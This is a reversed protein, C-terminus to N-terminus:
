ASPHIIEKLQTALTAIQQLMAEDPPSPGFYWFPPGTESDLSTANLPNWYAQPLKQAITHINNSLYWFQSINLLVGNISADRLTSILDEIRFLESEHAEDLKILQNMTWSASDLEDTFWFHTPDTTANETISPLRVYVESFIIGFQQSTEVMSAWRKHTEIRDSTWVFSALAVVIVLILVLLQKLSIHFVRNWRSPKVAAKDEIVDLINYSM